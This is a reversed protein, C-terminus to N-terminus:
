TCLGDHVRYYSIRTNSEAEFCNRPFYNPSSDFINLLQRMKHYEFVGDLHRYERVGYEPNRRAWFDAPNPNQAHGIFFEPDLDWAQGLKEIFRPSINEIVCIAETGSTKDQASLTLLDFPEKVMRHLSGNVYLVQTKNKDPQRLLERVASPSLHQIKSVYSQDVPGGTLETAKAMYHLVAIFLPM